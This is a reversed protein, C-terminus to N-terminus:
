LGQAQRCQLANMIFGTTYRVVEDGNESAQATEGAQEFVPDLFATSRAFVLTGIISQVTHRLSDYHFHGDARGKELIMILQRWLGHIVSQVRELRPSQMMVEQQLMNILDPEALRFLTFERILSSLDEVPDKLEYETQLFEPAFTEFLAFFVNEKGGFHYSVLALAVGAEDCIQRVTTGEFGKKAFLKKAANLIKLKVDEKVERGETERKM